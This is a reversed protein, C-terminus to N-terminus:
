VAQCFLVFVDIFVNPHPTVDMTLFRQMTHLVCWGHERTVVQGWCALGHVSFVIQEWLYCLGAM